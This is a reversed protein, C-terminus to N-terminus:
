LTVSFTDFLQAPQNEKLHNPPRPVTFYEGTLKDASVTIRLFGPLQDNSELLEVDPPFPVNQFVEHLNDFGAYGGAGAVIYPIERSQNGATQKRLFRQYDHVHATLVVHPLRNAAAFAEDLARGIRLEGGHQNDASFPPHHVAVVLFKGPDAKKLEAVLWDFQPRDAGNPDDLQGTVNSYLGILTIFPADLTFFVNPQTMTLRQSQGPMPPVEPTTTCFNEVFASLSTDGRVNDGDHNGPIAVIPAAYYQYPDYFQEPYLSLEGSYYVVDGLHYFLAPTSAADATKLQREMHFAVSEQAEAGHGHQGTDGVSHFVFQGADQIAKVRDEGLVDELRLLFPAAGTPPPLPKFRKRAFARRAEMLQAAAESPAELGEAGLALPSAAPHLQLTELPRLEGFQNFAPNNPM